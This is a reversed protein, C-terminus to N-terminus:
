ISRSCRTLKISRSVTARAAAETDFTGLLTQNLKCDCGAHLFYRDGRVNFRKAVRYITTAERAATAGAATALLEEKTVEGALYRTLMEDVTPVPAAHRRDFDALYRDMGTQGNADVVEYPSHYSCRPQNDVVHIAPAPRGDNFECNATCITGETALTYNM